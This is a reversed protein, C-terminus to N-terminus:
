VSSREPCLPAGLDVAGDPTVPWALDALFGSGVALIPATVRRFTRGVAMIGLPRLDPEAQRVLGWRPRPGRDCAVAQPTGVHRTGRPMPVRPHTSLLERAPSTTQGSRM